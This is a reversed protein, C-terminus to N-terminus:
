VEEAPQQLWKMYCDKCSEECDFDLFPCAPQSKGFFMAMEEDTMGRIRDANSKTDPKYMDCEDYGVCPDVEKTGMCRGTWVGNGEFKCKM